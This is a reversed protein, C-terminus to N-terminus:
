EDDPEPDLSGWVCDRKDPRDPRIQYQNAVVNLFQFGILSDREYQVEASTGAGASSCSGYSPDFVSEPLVAVKVVQHFNFVDAAYLNAGTGQAKMAKTKLRYGLPADGDARRPNIKVSTAAVGHAAVSNVLLDAWATCQGLGLTHKLMEASTMGYPEGTALGDLHTYKMETGDVRKTSRGSFMGWVGHVVERDHALADAEAEGPNRPRKGKAGECALHLVTEHKRDAAAGTVYLQNKTKGYVFSRPDRGEVRREVRWDIEWISSDITAPLASLAAIDGSTMTWAMAGAAAPALPRDFVRAGAREGVIHWEGAEANAAKVAVTLNAGIKTEEAPLSRRYSVPWGPGDPRGDHKGDKIGGAGGEIDLWQFADYEEGTDRRVGQGGLKLRFGTIELDNDKLLAHGSGGVPGVLWREIGTNIVEVCVRENPEVAGDDRPTLVIQAIGDADVTANGSSSEFDSPDADGDARKLARWHVTSGPRLGVNQISRVRFKVLTTSTSSGTPDESEDQTAEVVITPRTTAVVDAYFYALGSAVGEVPIHEFSLSATPSLHWFRLGYETVGGESFPPIVRQEQGDLLVRMGGTSCAHLNVFLETHVPLGNITLSGVTGYHDVTNSFTGTYTM